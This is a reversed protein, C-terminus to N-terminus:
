CERMIQLNLNYGWPVYVHHVENYTFCVWDGKELACPLQAGCVWVEWEYEVMRQGLAGTQLIKRKSGGRVDKWPKDFVCHSVDAAPYLDNPVCLPIGNVSFARTNETCVIAPALSSSNTPTPQAPTPEPTTTPNTATPQAPTPQATTTTTTGSVTITSDEVYLNHGESATLSVGDLLDVASMYLFMLGGGGIGASNHDIASKAVTVNSMYVYLGGGTMAANGSVYVGDLLVPASRTLRLAGGKGTAAVNHAIVSGTATLTSEYVYMGGGGSVDPSSGGGCICCMEASEEFGCWDDAYPIYAQCDDGGSDTWDNSTCLGATNNSASSGELLDVASSLAALAGGMVAATNHDFDSGSATLISSSRLSVGGAYNQAENHSVASNEALMSAGFLYVGGGDDSAWNGLIASSSVQLSGERLWVGGGDDGHATNDSILSGDFLDLFGDRAYVGGGDDSAGNHSVSSNVASMSAETYLYVGGGDNEAWNGLIASSSVALSGELVWIGGGDDGQASNYSISSSDSLVVESEWVYVGGGDNFAENSDIMIQAATLTSQYLYVGGGDGTATNGSVSTGDRIQVASAYVMLGGGTGAAANHDIESGVITLTSHYVSVGGGNGGASNDLFKCNLIEITSSDAHLAGGWGDETSGTCINNEMIVHSLSLTVEANLVFGGGVQALCNRVTSMSINASISSDLYAAGGGFGSACRQFEVSRMTVTVLSAAYYGGGYGARVCSLRGGGCVCCMEASEEFGCWDEAYPEYAACDDGVSDAWDYSICSVQEAHCAAGALLDVFSVGSLDLRSREDSYIGGGADGAYSHAISTEQAELSSGKGVFAAGGRGGSGSSTHHPLCTVPDSSTFSHSICDSRIGDSRV